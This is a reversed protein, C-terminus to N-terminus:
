INRQELQCVAKFVRECNSKDHFAYFSTVRDVYRAEMKAGRDIVRLIESVLDTETNVVPGFGDDEYSFFSNERDWNGSDFQYYLVPRKLYAFDFMVSSYDTVLVSGSRLLEVYRSEYPAVTVGNLDFDGLQQRISPHPVFLIKYGKEGIAQLFNQNNLVGNWKAFFESQKFMESYPIRKTKPDYRGIIGQRWTPMMLIIREKQTDGSLLDFRPFGTLAVQESTYQYDGNLIHAYEGHSSTVFLSFNQWSRRLWHSMDDKTIGHQLFVFRFRKVDRLYKDLRPFSFMMHDAHSSFINRATLLLFLHTISGYSVLKVGSRRLRGFDPSRKDIVFYNKWQRPAHRQYYKYLVEANDDAKDVRDIFMNRKAKGFMNGLRAILRVAMIPPIIALWEAKGSKQKLLEFGFCLEQKLVSLLSAQEIRVRKSRRVYRLLMGDGVLYSYKNNSQIKASQGVFLIKSVVTKANYRAVISFYKAARLAGKSIKFAFGKAQFIPQGLLYSTPHRYSVPSAEIRRGVSTEIYFEMSEQDFLQNYYGLISLHGDQYDFVDVNFRTNALSGRVTGDSDVVEIKSGTQEVRFLGKGVTPFERSGKWSLIAARQIRQTLVRSARLVDEDIEDLIELVLEAFDDFNKQVFDPIEEKVLKWAVDYFVVAQAYKHTRGDESRYRALTSLLNRFYPIYYDPDENALDMASIAQDVRKRYLYKADGVLGFKREQMVLALMLEADEGYKKGVTFRHNGLSARHAFSVSSSMFYTDWDEDIHVVPDGSFKYNLIHPGNQAGFMYFPITAIRVSENRSFFAAVHELTTAELLDDSDMFNIYRGRAVDIGANRAAAVGQNQQSIYVVNNPYKAAVSECIKPSSDTSGDNVLILEVQSFPFTQKVLSEVAEGLYKEVNYVAMVISFLFEPEGADTQDPLTAARFKAGRNGEMNLKVRGIM